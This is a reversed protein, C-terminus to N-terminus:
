GALRFVHHAEVGTMADVGRLSEYRNQNAPLISRSSPRICYYLFVAYLLPYGPVTGKQGHAKGQIGFRREITTAVLASARPRVGNPGVVVTACWFDSRDDAMLIPPSEAAAVGVVLGSGRGASREVELQNWAALAEYYGGDAQV